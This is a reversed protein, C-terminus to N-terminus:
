KKYKSVSISFKDKKERYSGSAIEQLKSESNDKSARISVEIDYNYYDKLFDRAVDIVNDKVTEEVDEELREQDRSNKFLNNWEEEDLKSNDTLVIKIDGRSISVDAEYTSNGYAGMKLKVHRLEKQIDKELDRRESSSLDKLLKDGSSKKSSNSNKSSSNSKLQENEKKLLMNENTLLAIKQNLAEVQGPVVTEKANVTVTRTANNYNIDVLGLESLSRVSLYTYGDDTTFPRLAANQVMYPTGNALLNIAYNVKKNQFVTDAFALSTVGVVTALAVLAIKKFKMIRVEQKIELSISKVNRIM